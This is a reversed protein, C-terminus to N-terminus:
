LQVFQLYLMQNMMMRHHEQLKRNGSGRLILDHFVAALRSYLGSDGAAVAARQEEVNARLLEVEPVSGRVALLRAAAGELIEKIEFLENIELLSPMTVFSGVRPRVPILGETQLQKLAERVPTRSVRFQESLKVEALATGPPLTGDIIQQRIQAAVTSRATGGSGSTREHQM